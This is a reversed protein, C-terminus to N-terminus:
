KHHLSWTPKIRVIEHWRSYHHRHAELMFAGGSSSGDINPKEGRFKKADESMFWGYAFDTAQEFDMGMPLLTLGAEKFANKCNEADDLKSLILWGDEIKWSRATDYHREAVDDRQWDFFALEMALHFHHTTDAVVKVEFNSMSGKM